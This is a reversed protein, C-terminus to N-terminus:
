FWIINIYCCVDDPEEKALNEQKVQTSLDGCRCEMTSCSDAHM